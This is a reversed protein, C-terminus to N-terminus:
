DSKIMHPRSVHVAECLKAWIIRCQSQHTSTPHGFSINSKCKTEIIRPEIRILGQSVTKERLNGTTRYFHNQRKTDWWEERGMFIHSIWINQSHAYFWSCCFTSYNSTSQHWRQGGLWGWVWYHAGQTATVAKASVIVVMGAAITISRRFLLLSVDRM